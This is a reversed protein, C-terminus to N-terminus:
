KELDMSNLLTNINNINLQFFGEVSIMKYSGLSNKYLYFYNKLYNKSGNENQTELIFDKLIIFNSGYYINGVSTQIEENNKYLTVNVIKDQIDFKFRYNIKNTNTVSYTVLSKNNYDDKDIDVINTLEKQEILKKSFFSYYEKEYLDLKEKIEKLKSENITGDKNIHKDGYASYLMRYDNPSILNCFYGNQVRMFSGTDIKGTYIDGLGFCHLLEHNLVTLMKEENYNQYSESDITITSDKIYLNKEDNNFIKDLLTKNTSSNATGAVLNEQINNKKYKITTKGITKKINYEFNDVLKFTYKDNITSFIDQIYNLSKNIYGALTSDISEDLNVYIPENTGNPKLRLIENSNTIDYNELLRDMVLMDADLFEADREVQSIPKLYKKNSIIANKTIMSGTVTVCALSFGLAFKDFSSLRSKKNKYKNM